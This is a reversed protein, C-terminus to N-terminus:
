EEHHWESKRSGTGRRDLTEPPDIRVVKLRPRADAPATIEDVTTPRWRHRLWWTAWLDGSRTLWEFLGPWRWRRRHDVHVQGVRFGRSSVLWPLFRHMGRFLQIGEIAERRAAWFLCDPDRVERGLLIRRPLYLFGLGIKALRSRRRCGVVLDTRALRDVLKCIQDPPYQDGAEVAVVVEGRAAAIGAILAASTGCAPNMRLVRLCPYRTLLERWASVSPGASGEDIAIVEYPQGLCDLTGCLEPLQRAFTDAADRQPVLVSYHVM